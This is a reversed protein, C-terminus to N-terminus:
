EFVEMIINMREGVDGFLPRTFYAEPKGGAAQIVWKEATIQEFLM